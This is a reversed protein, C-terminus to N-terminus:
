SVEPDCEELPLTVTGDKYILDSYHIDYLYKLRAAVHEIEQEQCQLAERIETRWQNNNTAPICGVSLSSVEFYTHTRSLKLLVLHLYSASKHSWKAM